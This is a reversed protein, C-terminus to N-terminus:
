PCDVSHLGPYVPDVMTGSVVLVGGTRSWSLEYSGSAVPRYGDDARWSGSERWAIGTPGVAYVAGSGALLFSEERVVATCGGPGTPRLVHYQAGLDNLGGVVSGLGAAAALLGRVFAPRARPCSPAPGAASRRRVALVGMLILTVVLLTASVTWGPIVHGAVVLLVGSWGVAAALLLCGTTVTWDPAPRTVRGARCRESKAGSPRM